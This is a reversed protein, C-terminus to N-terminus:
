LKPSSQGNRKWGSRGMGKKGRPKSKNMKRMPITNIDQAVEEEDKIDNFIFKQTGYSEEAYRIENM